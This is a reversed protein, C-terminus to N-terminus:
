DNEFSRQQSGFGQLSSHMRTEPSSQISSSRNKGRVRTTQIELGFHEKCVKRSKGLWTEKVEMSKEM